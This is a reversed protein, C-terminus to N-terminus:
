KSNDKEWTIFAEGDYALLFIIEACQCISELEQKSLEIDSQKNVETNALICLSHWIAYSKDFCSDVLEFSANIGPIIFYIEKDFFKGHSHFLPIDCEKKYTLNVADFVCSLHKKENLLKTLYKPFDRIQNAGIGGHQFQYFLDEQTGEPFTVYFKGLNLYKLMCKALANAKSMNDRFYPLVREFDLENKKM